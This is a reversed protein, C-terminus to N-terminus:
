RAPLLPCASCYDEGPLLYFLCCQRHLPITRSAEPHPRQRPLLPNPRGDHWLPLGLLTDRDLAIHPAHGTLALGQEFLGDLRRALNGWLIKSSIRSCRALQAFLPALHLDILPALREGCSAGPRATGGHGIHFSRPVADDDGMVVQMEHPATPFVHRLVSGAAVVPPLLADLYAFCWSSAAARLDSGTVGRHHAHRRLLGELLAPEDILRRVPVADAPPEAACVLAEGLPAWAGQFLPELLPIM